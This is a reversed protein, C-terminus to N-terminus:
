QETTVESLAESLLRKDLMQNQYRYAYMSDQRELCDPCARICQKTIEEVRDALESLDKRQSGRNAFREYTNRIRSDVFAEEELGLVVDMARPTRNLESAVRRYTRAVAGYFRALEKTEYLSSIRRNFISIIEEEEVFSIGDMEPTCNLALDFLERHIEEEAREGQMHIDYLVSADRDALLSLVLDESLSIHCSCQETLPGHISLLGERLRNFVEKSTGAGGEISDYLAVQTVDVDKSQFNADYWTEFDSGGLGAEVAWSAVANQLSHVLVHESFSQQGDGNACRRLTEGLEESNERFLEKLENRQEVDYGTLRLRTPGSAPILKDLSDNIDDVSAEFVSDPGVDSTRLWYDVAQLSRYVPTVDYVNEISRSQFFLDDWLERYLQAFGLDRRLANNTNLQHSVSSEVWERPIDFLLVQSKEESTVFAVRDERDNFYRVIDSFTRQDQRYVTLVSAYYCKLFNSENSFVIRSFLGGERETDYSEIDGGLRHLHKFWLFNSSPDSMGLDIVDEDAVDDPNFNLVNRHLTDFFYRPSEPQKVYIEEPVYLGVEDPAYRFPTYEESDPSALVNELDYDKRFEFGPVVNVFGDQHSAAYNGTWMEFDWRRKYGGPLYYSLMLDLPESDLLGGEDATVPINGGVQESIFTQPVTLPREAQPDVEFLDPIHCYPQLPGYRTREALDDYYRVISEIRAALERHQGGSEDSSM